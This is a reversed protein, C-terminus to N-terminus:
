MRKETEEDIISQLIELEKKTMNDFDIGNESAAKKINYSITNANSLLELIEEKTAMIEVETPVNEYYENYISEEQIEGNVLKQINDEKRLNEMFEVSIPLWKLMKKVVTKIAMEEFNKNWINNKYKGLRYKQEHDEVEKKTMYEFAKTGDNLIAVSYFGRIEGRGEPNEFAPKHTLTRDLGYEISFEDNTYVTYAYIDKLQGTRRLLEVTGKYSIQMQCETYLIKGDKDKKNFPLLYVQGLVGPELGLQASTMLCGLLSEQTCKLLEPNKRIETLAIRTFRESKIHKPLALAFQSEMSRILDLINPKKEAKAIDGTEKGIIENKAIKATM